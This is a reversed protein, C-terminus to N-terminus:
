AVLGVLRRAILGPPGDGVLAAVAPRLRGVFRELEVAGQDVARDLEGPDVAWRAAPPESEYPGSLGLWRGDHRVSQWLHGIWLMQWGAGRYAAAVQWDSLNGLDVCCALEALVEDAQCLAM